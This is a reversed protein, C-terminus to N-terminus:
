APSIGGLPEPPTHRSVYLYWLMAPLASAATWLLDAFRRRSLLFVGYGATLLLGTERTLAACALILLLKWRPGRDSYLVFGAALAALAVDVTMRDMSVLAAPMLAFMLGWAPHRGQIVMARALWYVGLFVFGLIVAFYAAHIASDRGLALAWALAPVLIRRYRLAPDDMAAVAGRRMWPDHAIFHYMQGDYGLSGSPFTYLTESALFAPRPWDPATNFLATWNGGYNFHVTAFQWLWMGLVAALALAAPRRTVHDGRASRSRGAPRSEFAAAPDDGAGAAGDRGLGVVTPHIARLVRADGHDKFKFYAVVLGTLAEGAILGSAILIGVSEVRTKQAENYGRRKASRSRFGLAAPRRRFDRVIDAVASVHRGGGAHSQAGAVPDARSRVARRHGGPALAHRRRRHRARSAGDIRSAARVAQSRRIRHRREQYQGSLLIYLPYYMVLSALVVAILEVIQITRPTGGLIYGVKFDQLLEGAVASSVCVVAAVGLVVAVGSPGRVGLAVMLLAAIILTSLTLGSIPNNSSGIMGVLNGSVTAFFFGVILM